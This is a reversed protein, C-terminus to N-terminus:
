DNCKKTWYCSVVKEAIKNQITFGTDTMGGMSVDSFWNWILVGDVWPQQLNKLWLELVKAQMEADPQDQQSNTELWPHRYSGRESSIGIEAIWFRKDMTSVISEIENVKDMILQSIRAADWDQGLPPYLTLSISDLMDWYPFRKLGAVGHAAYSIEGHYKKRVEIILQRFQPQIAAHRLETGLMLVEVNYHQAIEAYHLILRQYNGYWKHWAEHTGPNIEGAWSNTVLVQPKLVVKLGLDHADAIAHKLQDDTVASSPMIRTTTPDDQQLFVILAVTNAGNDKIKGLSQMSTFSNLSVTPTQLYNVGQYYVGGFHSCSATM